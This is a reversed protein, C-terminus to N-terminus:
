FVFSILYEHGEISICGYSQSKVFNMLLKYFFCFYILHNLGCRRFLSWLKIHHVHTSLLPPDLIERIVNFYRKKEFIFWLRVSKVHCYPSYNIFSYEIKPSGDM